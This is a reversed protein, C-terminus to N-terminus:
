YGRRAIGGRTIRSDVGQRYATTYRQVLGGIINSRPETVFEPAESCVNIMKISTAKQVISGILAANVKVVVGNPGPVIVM